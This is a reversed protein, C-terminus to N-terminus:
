AKKWGMAMDAPKSGSTWRSLIPRALWVVMYMFSVLATPRSKSFAWSM